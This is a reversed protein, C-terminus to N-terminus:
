AIIGRPWRLKNPAITYRKIDDVDKESLKRRGPRSIAAQV